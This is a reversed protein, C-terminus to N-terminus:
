FNCTFHMVTKYDCCLKSIYNSHTLTMKAKGRYLITVQAAPMGPPMVSMMQHGQYTQASPYAQTICHLMVHLVIYQEVACIYAM